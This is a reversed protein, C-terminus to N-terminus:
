IYSNWLDLEMDFFANFLETDTFTNFRDLQKMVM